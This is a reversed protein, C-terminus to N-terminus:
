QLAVSEWGDYNGGHERALYFLPTTIEDIKEHSPLDTNYIQIGFWASQEDPEILCRTQFGLEVAKAEFQGRQEADPFEIWHDIERPETLPDGEEELVACVRWNEIGLRQEEDPYLFGLYTQWDPDEWIVSQIDYGPFAERVAVVNEEAGDASAVYALQDRHGGYTARGAAVGPPVLKALEASWADELENLVAAEESSSLGDPRPNLMTVRVTWLYPLHAMPAEEVLDLDVFISAREQEVDCVYFDWNESM